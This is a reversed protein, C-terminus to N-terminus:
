ANILVQKGIPDEHFAQEFESSSKEARVDVERSTFFRGRIIPFDLM